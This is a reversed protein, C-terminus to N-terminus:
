IREQSWKKGWVQLYWRQTSTEWNGAELGSTKWCKQNMYAV